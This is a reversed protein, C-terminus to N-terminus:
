EKLITEIIGVLNKANYLRGVIKYDGFLKTIREQLLFFFHKIIYEM